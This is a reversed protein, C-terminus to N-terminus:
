LSVSLYTKKENKVTSLIMSLVINNVYELGQKISTALYKNQNSLVAISFNWVQQFPPINHVSITGNFSVPTAWIQLFRSQMYFIM